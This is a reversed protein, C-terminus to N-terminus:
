LFFNFKLWLYCNSDFCSIESLILFEQRVLLFIVELEFGFIQMGIKMVTKTIPFKTIRLRKRASSSLENEPSTKCCVAADLLEKATAPSRM